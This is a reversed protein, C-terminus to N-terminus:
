VELGPLRGLKGLAGYSVVRMGDPIALERWSLGVFASVDAPPGGVRAAVGVGGWGVGLVAAVDPPASGLLADVLVLPEACAQGWVVGDGSRVWPSLDLADVTLEVPM